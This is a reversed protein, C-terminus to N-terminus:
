NKEVQLDAEGGNEEPTTGTTSTKNDNPTAEVRDFSDYSVDGSMALVEDKNAEEGESIVRLEYEYEQFANVYNVETFGLGKFLNISGENTENIKVYFRTVGLRSIAFHMMLLIAEKACGQRQYAKEAIMVMLEAVTPDDRDNLFLNVDGIMSEIHDQPFIDKATVIFTCKKPDTHWSEQMEYEEEITLPESATMELIYPDQMWSNYKDVHKSRYPCLM